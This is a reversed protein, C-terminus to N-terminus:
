ASRTAGTTSCRGRSARRSSSCCAARAARRGGGARRLDPGHLADRVARGLSYAHTSTLEWGGDVRKASGAPAAVAPCLFYGDGFLEAQVDEEFLMGTQLAHGAPLCLCWATSPCGRAVEIVVGGSRASTSSSGATASRSSCTPLLGGRPVGRPDGALLLHAGRDRGAARGPAPAARRRARGARRRDTSM